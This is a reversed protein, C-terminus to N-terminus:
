AHGDREWRDRFTDAADGYKEKLYGIAQDYKGEFRRMEDDTLDGWMEKAKGVFQQWRGENETHATSRTAASHDM